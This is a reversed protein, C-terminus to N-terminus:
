HWRSNFGDRYLGFNVEVTEGNEDPIRYIYVGEEEASLTTGVWIKVIAPLSPYQRIRLAGITIFSTSIPLPTGDLGIIEGVTTADTGSICWLLGGSRNMVSISNNPLGESLHFVGAGSM